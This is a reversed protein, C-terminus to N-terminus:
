ACLGQCGADCSGIEVIGAWSCCLPVCDKGCTIISNFFISPKSAQLNGPHQLAQRRVTQELVILVTEGFSRCKKKMKAAPPAGLKPMCPPGPCCCGMCGM